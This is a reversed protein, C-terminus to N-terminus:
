QIYIRASRAHGIHESTAFLILMNKMSQFHLYWNSTREALVHQKMMCIYEMYQLWLNATRSKGILNQIEDNLGNLLSRFENSESFALFQEDSIGGKIAHVYIPQLPTVDVKKDAILTELIISTLAIEVLFHGRLARSVAKGAMHVVSNKAYVESFLQEIGSGSMMTGISGLFSMM